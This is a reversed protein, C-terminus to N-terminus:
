FTYLIEENESICCKQMTKEDNKHPPFNSLKTLGREFILKLIILCISKFNCRIKQHQIYRQFRTLSFRLSSSKQEYGEHM